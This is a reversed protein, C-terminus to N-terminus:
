ALGGVLIMVAILSWFKIEQSHVMWWQAQTPKPANVYDKMSIERKNNVGCSRIGVRHPLHHYKGM